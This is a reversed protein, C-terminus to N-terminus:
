HGVLTLKLKGSALDWVKITKDNSGSAFWSNTPDVALSRVWGTHGALVRM